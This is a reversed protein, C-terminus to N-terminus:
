KGEDRAVWLPRLAARDAESLEDPATTASFAKTKLRQPYVYPAVRKMAAQVHPPFANPDRIVDDIEYCQIGSLTVTFGPKMAGEYGWFGAPDEDQRRALAARRLQENILFDGAATQLAAGVYGPKIFIVPPTDSQLAIRLAETSFKMLTDLSKGERRPPQIM